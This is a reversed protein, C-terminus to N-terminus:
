AEGKKRNRIAAAIFALIAIWMSSVGADALEAAGEPTLAYAVGAFLAGRVAGIAGFTQSATTRVLDRTETLVELVLAM